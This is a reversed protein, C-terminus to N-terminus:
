PAAAGGQERRALAREAATDIGRALVLYLVASVSLGVFISCDVSALRRAIPGTYPTTVFFPVMALLGALYAANGRWGWRGYIGAPKFLEALVYVGRRVFFYDVLNVATWPTLIYAFFILTNGYFEVYHEEGVWRAVAWVLAAMALITLARARRTPAVPRFSDVIAIMSLSGGYHNLALVSLLGILLASITLAGLGPVASDGALRLSEVVPAGRPGAAAAIAGLAMVWIASLASPLYTWLFSARVSVTAPLYRSYDSVYPAWGLQFGAVIVFCTMFPAPQFAGPAFAGDPLARNRLAAVTFVALILLLPWTLWRSVIHIWHYGYLAILIAIAAAAAFGIQVPVGFLSHLAQGSLIADSISYAVYNGLAFVWVTLAAGLYGFQARSQVMQPLGLQPGQASHFAMFFTGFLSGLATALLTWFLGGGFSLATIGTAISTLNVNGVFWIAGLSSVRGFREGTPVWDISRCEIESARLAAQDRM